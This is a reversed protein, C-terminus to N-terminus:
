SMLLIVNMRVFKKYHGNNVMAMDSEVVNWNEKTSNLDNLGHIQKDMKLTSM